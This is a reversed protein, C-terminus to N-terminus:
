FWEFWAPIDKFDDRDLSTIGKISEDRKWEYAYYIPKYTDVKFVPIPTQIKKKMPYYELKTTELPTDLATTLPNTFSYWADWGPVNYTLEFDEYYSGAGKNRIDSYAAPSDSTLTAGKVVWPATIFGPDSVTLTFDQNWRLVKIGPNRKELYLPDIYEGSTPLGVIADIIIGENPRLWWGTRDGITTFPKTTPGSYYRPNYVKGSGLLSSSDYEFGYIRWLGEERVPYSKVKYDTIEDLVWDEPLAIFVRDYGWNEVKIDLHSEVKSISGDGPRLYELSVDAAVTVLSMSLLIPLIIIVAKM